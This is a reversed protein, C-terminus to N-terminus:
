LFCLQLILFVIWESNNINVLKFIHQQKSVNITTNKTQNTIHKAKCSFISTFGRIIYLGTQIFCVIYYSFVNYRMIYVTIMKKWSARSHVYGVLYYACSKGSILWCPLCTKTLALEETSVNLSKPCLWVQFDIHWTVCFLSTELSHLVKLWSGGIKVPLKFFMPFSFYALSTVAFPKKEMESERAMSLGPFQYLASGLNGSPCLFSFPSFGLLWGRRWKM